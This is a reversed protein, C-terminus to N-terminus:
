TTTAQLIGKSIDVEVILSRTVVEAGYPFVLISQLYSSEIKFDGGFGFNIDTMIISEINSQNFNKMIIQLM